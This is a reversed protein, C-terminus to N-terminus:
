PGFLMAVRAALLRGIFSLPFTRYSPADDPLVVDAPKYKTFNRMEIPPPTERVRSRFLSTWHPGRDFALTMASNCCTAVMRNTASTAKLKEAKLLDQGRRCAVRDKRFLIYATSGDPERVRPAQPRAEIRGSGERCDDCYCAATLIPRGTTVIEVRGCTCVATLQTARSATM